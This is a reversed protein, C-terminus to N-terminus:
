RGQKWDTFSKPGEKGKVTSSGKSPPPTAAAVKAKARLGEIGSIVFPDNKVESLRQGRGKAYTEMLAIEDRSYGSLRLDVKDEIDDSIKPSEPTAPKKFGALEEQTKKLQEALQAAEDSKKQAKERWHKKRAIETQLSQKVAEDQVAPIINEELSVDDKELEIENEM